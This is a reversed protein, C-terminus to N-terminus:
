VLLFSLLSFIIRELLVQKPTDLYAKPVVIKANYYMLPHLNLRKLEDLIHEAFCNPCISVRAKKCKICQTAEKKCKKIFNGLDPILADKLEHYNPYYTLWAELQLSICDPCLPNTVPEYCISCDYHSESLLHNPLTM